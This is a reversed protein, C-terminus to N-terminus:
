VPPKPYEAVEVVIVVIDRSRAREILAHCDILYLIAPAQRYVRGNVVINGQIRPTNQFYRYTAIAELHIHVM